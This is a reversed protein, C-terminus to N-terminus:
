FFEVVFTLCITLLKALGNNIITMSFYERAFVSLRLKSINLNFKYTTFLGLGSLFSFGTMAFIAFCDTAVWRFCSHTSIAEDNRRAIVSKPHYRSIAGLEEVSRM